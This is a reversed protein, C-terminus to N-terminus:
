GPNMEPASPGTVYTITVLGSGAEITNINPPAPRRNALFYKTLRNRQSIQATEFDLEMLAGRSLAEAELGLGRFSM